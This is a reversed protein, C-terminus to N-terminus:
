RFSTTKAGNKDFRQTKDPESLVFGGPGTEREKERTKAHVPRSVGM